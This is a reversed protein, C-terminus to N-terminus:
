GARGFKIRDRVAHSSGARAAALLTHVANWNQLDLGTAGNDLLSLIDKLVQQGRESRRLQSVAADLQEDTPMAALAARELRESERILAAIDDLNESM